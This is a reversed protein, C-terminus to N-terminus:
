PQHLARKAYRLPHPSLNSDEQCAIRGPAPESCNFGDRAEVAAESSAASDNGLSLTPPEVLAPLAAAGEDADEEGGSRRETNGSERAFPQPAAGSSQTCRQIEDKCSNAEGQRRVADRADGKLEGDGDDAESSADPAEPEALSGLLEEYVARAQQHQPDVLLASKLLVSAGGWDNGLQSLLLLTLVERRQPHDTARKHTIYPGKPM